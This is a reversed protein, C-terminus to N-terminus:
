LNKIAYSMRRPNEWDRRVKAWDKTDTNFGVVRKTWTEIEGGCEPCNPHIGISTHKNKCTTTGIEIAFHPINYYEIMRETLKISSEETMSGDINFHCIAGGSVINMLEGMTELRDFPDVEVYLPIMQNSLLEVKGYWPKDGYYLNDIKALKPSANEAPVEEVNFAYGEHVEGCIKANDEMLNLISKSFEFYNEKFADEFELRGDKNQNLVDYADWLGTFGFTSFFMNLDAWGIRFFKLTGTDIIKKLWKKHILLLIEAYKQYKNVVDEFLEGEDIAECAISHLNLTVVRGSGISMGGNGFSDMKIQSKLDALDQSLRCCSAIKEGKHFNFVGRKANLKCMEEFFERDLILCKKDPYKEKEHDTFSEREKTAINVTCVPFRYNKGTLPSGEAFFKAFIFQIHMIEDIIDVPSTGDPYMAEAFTKEITNRCFLSLNTFPSNHAFLNDGALFNENDRVSIDYSYKEDPQYEISEVFIPISNQLVSLREFLSKMKKLQMEAVFKFNAINNESLPERLSYKKWGHTEEYHKFANYPLILTDALERLENLSSVSLDAYKIREKLDEYLEDAILLTINLAGKSKLKVTDRYVDKIMPRLYELDCYNNPYTAKLKKRKEEKDRRVFSFYDKYQASITIVTDPRVTVYADNVSKYEEHEEVVKHRMSYVVGLKLLLLGIGKQLDDSITSACIRNKDVWGDCELYGSLFAKIVSNDYDLIHHPIHKNGSGEGCLSVIAEAFDIGVNCVLKGEKPNNFSVSPLIRKLNSRTYRELDDNFLSLELSSSTIHGNAVYHGLFRAFDEDFLISEPLEKNGHCGEMSLTVYGEGSSDFKRPVILNSPKSKPAVLDIFGHNNMTFMSHNETVVIEQGTKLKIKVFKNPNEHRITAYIPKWEVKGTDVNFSLAEYGPAIEGLGQEEIFEGIPKYFTEGNWKIVVKTSETISDGGIRFTNHLVHVLHQLSDEVVKDYLINVADFPNTGEILRYKREFDDENHAFFCVIIRNADDKHMLTESLMEVAKELQIRDKNSYYAANVLVNAIGIAGANEQSMDMAVEVTQGIFSYLKKPNGGPLWGYPRGEHMWFSSDPAFCNHQLLGGAQFVGNDVTIDYVFEYTEHNTDLDIEFIKTVSSDGERVMAVERNFDISSMKESHKKFLPEVESSPTFQLKFLIPTTSKYGTRYSKDFRMSLFDIGIVELLDRIQQLLGFNSVRILIGKGNQTGEADVIGSILAVISEKTWSYIDQPLVKDYSTKGINFFGDIFKAFDTENINIADDYVKYNINLSDLISLIYDKNKQKISIKNGAKNIFGDGIIFGLLYAIDYDISVTEELIPLSNDLSRLKDGLVIDKAFKLRGDELIVPHDASVITMKGKGSEIALLSDHRRHKLVRHVKVFEEGNFVEVDIKKEGIKRYLKDQKVRSGYRINFDKVIIVPKDFEIQERDGLIVVSDGYSDFLTKLTMLQPKGGIRFLATTDQHYSYPVDYKTWDHHYLKGNICAKIIENALETGYEEKIMEWATNMARLKIIPKFIESTFNVPSKGSINANPDISVDAVVDTKYYEKALRFPDIEGIGNLNQIEQPFSTVLQMFAPDIDLGIKFM